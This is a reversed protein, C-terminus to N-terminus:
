VNLYRKSYKVWTFFILGYIAMKFIYKHFFEALYYENLYMWTLGYCRFINLIVIGITGIVVYPLLRKWYIPFCFLFGVYLVILELGNCSDSIGVLKQNANYVAVSWSGEPRVVDKVQALKIGMINHYLFVSGEATFRTLHKDPIRIPFLLLHYLLKWVIFLILAKTLFLRVEKPLQKLFPLAPSKIM